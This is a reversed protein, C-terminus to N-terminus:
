KDFGDLVLNEEDEENDGAIPDEEDPNSKTPLAKPVYGAVTEHHKLERVVVETNEDVNEWSVAYRAGATKNDVVVGASM